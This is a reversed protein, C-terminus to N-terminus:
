RRRGGPGALGAPAGMRRRLEDVALKTWTSRTEFTHPAAWDLAFPEGELPSASGPAYSASLALELEGLGEDHPGKLTIHLRNV